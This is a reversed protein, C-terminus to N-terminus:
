FLRTRVIGTIATMAKVDFPMLEMCMTNSLARLAVKSANYVRSYVLAFEGDVSGINIITGKAEILLPALAQTITLVALVNTDFMAKAIEIDSDLILM